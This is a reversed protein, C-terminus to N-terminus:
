FVAYIYVGHSYIIVISRRSNLQPVLFHTGREGERGSDRQRSHSVVMVFEFCDCNSVCSCDCNCYCNCNANPIKRNGQAAVPAALLRSLFYVRLVEYFKMSCFLFRIKICTEQWKIRYKATTPGAKPQRVRSEWQSCFIFCFSIDQRPLHNTHTMKCSLDLQFIDKVINWQIVDCGISRVVYCSMICVCVCVCACIYIYNVYCRSERYM